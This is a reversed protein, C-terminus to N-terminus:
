SQRGRERFLNDYIDRWHWLYADARPKPEPPSVGITTWYVEISPKSLEDDFQEVTPPATRTVAM